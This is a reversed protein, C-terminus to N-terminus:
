RCPQHEDDITGLMRCAMYFGHREVWKVFIKTEKLTDFEEIRSLNLPDHVWYTGETMHSVFIEKKRIQTM